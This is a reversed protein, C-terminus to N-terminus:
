EFLMESTQSRKWGEMWTSAHTGGDTGMGDWKQVEIGGVGSLKAFQGVQMQAVAYPMMLVVCPLDCVSCDGVRQRHVVRQQRHRLLREGFICFLYGAAAARRARKRNRRAQMLKLMCRMPKRMGLVHVYACVCAVHLLMSSSAWWTSHTHGAYLTGRASHMRAKDARTCTGAMSGRDSIERTQGSVAQAAM